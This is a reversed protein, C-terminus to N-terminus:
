LAAIWAIITFKEGSVPIYANAAQITGYLKSDNGELVIPVPIGSYAVRSNSATYNQLDCALWTGGNEQASDGIDLAANDNTATFTIPSLFVNFYPLAAQKVSSVIALKRIEIQNNGNVSGTLDLQFVVPASTSNTVADGITYANTDTPRLFSTSVKILKYGVSLQTM